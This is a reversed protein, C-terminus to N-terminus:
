DKIWPNKRSRSSRATSHSATAVTKRSNQNKATSNKGSVKAKSTEEKATNGSTDKGKGKRVNSDKHKPSSNVENQSGINLNEGNGQTGSFDPVSEM